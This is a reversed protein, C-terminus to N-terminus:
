GVNPQIDILVKLLYEKYNVWFSHDFLLTSGQAPNPAAGALEKDDDLDYRQRPLAFTGPGFGPWPERTKYFPPLIPSREIKNVTYPKENKTYPIDCNGCYYGIKNLLSKEGVRIYTSNVGQHCITCKTV